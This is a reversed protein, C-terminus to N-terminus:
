RRIWGVVRPTLCAVGTELFPKDPTAAVDNATVVEEKVAGTLPIAFILPPNSAVTSKLAAVVVIVALRPATAFASPVAPGFDKPVMAIAAPCDEVKVTLTVLEVAPVRIGQTTASNM